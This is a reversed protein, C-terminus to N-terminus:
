DPVMAFYAEIAALLGRAIAARTAPQRLAQDDNKNSVFLSEIVIGPMGTPTYRRDPDNGPGLVWYDSAVGPQYSPDDYPDSYIARGIAPYGTARLASVVSPLALRALVENRRSFSRRVNFWVETGSVEREEKGNFHISFFLDAKAQNAVAVRAMLDRSIRRDTKNRYAPDVAWLSDRTIVVNYGAETLLDSTRQAVEYTLDSEWLTNDQSVVGPDPLGHGADLAITRPQWDRPRGLAAPSGGPAPAAARAPPTEGPAIAAEPLARGAPAALVPGFEPLGILGALLIPLALGGSLSLILARRIM